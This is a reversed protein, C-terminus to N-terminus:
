PTTGNLIDVQMANIQLTRNVEFTVPECLAERGYVTDSVLALTYTGDEEFHQDLDDISVVHSESADRDMPFASVIAGEVGEISAGKYLLLYTDSRPYLDDLLLEVTPAKFRLKDGNNIGKISGHAVPWVQVHAAALQSQAFTSDGLAHIVFHEEGSAKLPDAAQLSSAQFKLVTRGNENLYVSQAPQSALVAAPDLTRSGAPYSALHRNLLVSTASVPLGAGTLLDALEIQVTFPQDIRTRPVAGDPDLTAITIQAKPLYAGVLKQDLLYDVAKTQNITWLQFLAGGSELALASAGKGRAEVPMDWVVGTGSQNQRIFNVYSDSQAAAHLSTAILWPLIRKM